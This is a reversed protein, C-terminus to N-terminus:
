LHRIRNNGGQEGPISHARPSSEAQCDCRRIRFLDDIWAILIRTNVEAESVTLSAKGAVSSAKLLSTMGNVESRECMVRKNWMYETSGKLKKNAVNRENGCVSEAIAWRMSRASATCDPSHLDLM